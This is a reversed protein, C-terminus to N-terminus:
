NSGVVSCVARARVCVCACARANQICVIKRARVRWVSGKRVRVVVRVRVGGRVNCVYRM